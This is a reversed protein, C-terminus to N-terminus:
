DNTIKGKKGLIGNMIGRFIYKFRKVRPAVFCPYIILELCREILSKIKWKLPVYGKKLLLINNRFQYYHRIPAPILLNYVSFIKVNKSGVMHGMKIKKSSYIRFGHKKARWCWEFDVLDIFLSEDMLGIEKVAKTLLLKGSSILVEKEVFDQDIQIGKNLVPKYIENTKKNFIDPGICAIKLGKSVLYDIGSVLESVLNNPPNSDQDLLLVGDYNHGIAIKIGVNQAAGIGRNEKLSVWEIKDVLHEETLFSNNIPNDTNDVIVLKDVQKVISKINSSLEEIDPYFCVMVACVKFKQNVTM